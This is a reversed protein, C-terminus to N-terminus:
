NRLDYLRNEREQATLDSIMSEMENIEGDNECESFWDMIVEQVEQEKQM